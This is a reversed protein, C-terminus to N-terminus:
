FEIGMRVPNRSVQNNQHGLGSSDHRLRSIGHKRGMSVSFRLERECSIDRSKTIQHGLGSSDHRLRSTGHKRGM